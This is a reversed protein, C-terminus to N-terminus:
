DIFSPKLTEPYTLTVTLLLLSLPAFIIAVLIENEEVRVTFAEVTRWVQTLTENATRQLGVVTAYITKEAVM